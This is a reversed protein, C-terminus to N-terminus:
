FRCGTISITGVHNKSYILYSNNMNLQNILMFNYSFEVNSITIFGFGSSLIFSGTAVSATDDYGAGIDMVIGKDYSFSTEICDSTCHLMIVSGAVKAQMKYFNVNALRLVGSSRIFSNYQYRFGNFDVNEIYAENSFDFVNVSSYSNCSTSYNANINSEDIFDNRDNFYYGQVVSLNPCYTCFESYNKDLM